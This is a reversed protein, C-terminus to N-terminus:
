ATKEARSRVSLGYEDSGFTMFNCSDSLWCFRVSSDRFFSSVTAPPVDNSPVEAPGPPPSVDDSPVDAEDNPTPFPTIPAGTGVSAITVVPSTLAATTPDPTIVRMHWGHLRGDIGSYYHVGGCLVRPEFIRGDWGEGKATGWSAIEMNEDHYYIPTADGPTIGDEVYEAHRLYPGDMARVYFSRVEGPNLSLHRM